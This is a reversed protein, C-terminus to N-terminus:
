DANMGLGEKPGRAIPEIGLTCGATMLRGANFCAGKLVMRIDVGPQLMRLAEALSARRSSISPFLRTRSQM